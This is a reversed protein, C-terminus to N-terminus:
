SNTSGHLCCDAVTSGPKLGQPLMRESYLTKSYPIDSLKSPEVFDKGKTQAKLFGLGLASMGALSLFKRRSDKM